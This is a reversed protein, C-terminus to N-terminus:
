ESAKELLQKAHQLIHCQLRCATLVPVAEFTSTRPCAPNHKLEESVTGGARNGSKEKKNSKECTTSYMKKM